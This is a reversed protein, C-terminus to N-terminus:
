KGTQVQAGEVKVRPLRGGKPDYQRGKTGPLAACVFDCDYTHSGSKTCRDIMGGLVGGPVSTCTYGDNELDKKEVASAPLPSAIFCLTSISLGAFFIAKLKM